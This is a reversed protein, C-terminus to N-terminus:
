SEPIVEARLGRESLLFTVLGGGFVLSSVGLGVLGGTTQGSNDNAAGAIAIGGSILIGLIGTLALIGGVWSGTSAGYKLSVRTDGDFSMSTPLVYENGDERLVNLRYPGPEVNVNCPLECVTEFASPADLPAMQLAAGAYLRISRFRLRVQPTTPEPNAPEPQATADEVVDEEEAPIPASESAEVPEQAPLPAPAAEGTTEEGLDSSSAEQAEATSVSILSLAAVVCVIHSPTM